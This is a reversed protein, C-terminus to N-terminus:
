KIGGIRSEVKNMWERLGPIADISTIPLVQEVNGKGDNKPVMLPKVNAM